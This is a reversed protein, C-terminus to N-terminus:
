SYSYRPKSIHVKVLGKYIVLSVKLGAVIIGCIHGYFGEIVKFHCSGSGPDIPYYLSTLM